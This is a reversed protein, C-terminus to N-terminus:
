ISLTNISQTITTMGQHSAPHSTQQKPQMTTPQNTPRQNTTPRKIEKSEQTGPDKTEQKGPERDEQKGPERPGQCPTLSGHLWSTPQLHGLSGLTSGPLGPSWGFVLWDVVLSGLSGLSRPFWPFWRALSGLTSGSLSPSSVVFWGISLWSVM